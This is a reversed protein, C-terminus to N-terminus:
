PALSAVTSCIINASYLKMDWNRLNGLIICLILELLLVNLIGILIEKRDDNDDALSANKVTPTIVINSAVKNQSSKLLLLKEYKFTTIPACFWKHFNHLLSYCLAIKEFLMAM